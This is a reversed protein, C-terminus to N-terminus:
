PEIVRITSIYDIGEYTAIIESTGLGIAEVIGDTYTCISEDASKWQADTIENGDGDVLQLTFQDGIFLSVDNAYGYPNYLTYTQSTSGDTQASGGAETIGGSDGMGSFDCHIICSVTQEDYVGYVMTDGNGVATVKGDEITAVDDDDSIWLIDSTPIVGSYILWTQGEQDFTIEKRNLLIASEANEDEPVASPVACAVFCEAKISGCSVTIVASGEGTFTITGDSIVTAVSIDSSSFLIEDTTNAPEPTATLKVTDGISESQIQLQSLTIKKCSLDPETEAQETSPTEVSAQTNPQTDENKQVTVSTDIFADILDAPVFLQFAIYGLVAIIALLLIIIITILGTNKKKTNNGSVDTGVPESSTGSARNRKKVNAKSFRGGKVYTYTGSSSRETSSDASRVEGCIPCQAANEPYSTGCLNCTVKNM